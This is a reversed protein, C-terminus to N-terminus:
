KDHGLYSNLIQPLRNHGSVTDAKATECTEYLLKATDPNDSSITWTGIGYNYYIDYCDSGSLGYNYSDTIWEKLPINKNGEAYSLTVSTLFLILYTSFTKM